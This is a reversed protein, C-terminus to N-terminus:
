LEEPHSEQAVITFFYLYLTYCHTITTIRYLRNSVHTEFAKLNDFFASFVHICHVVHRRDNSQSTISKKALLLDKLMITFSDM